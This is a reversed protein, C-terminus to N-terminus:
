RPPRPLGARCGCWREEASQAFAMLAQEQWLPTKAVVFKQEPQSALDKYHELYKRKVAEYPEESTEAHGFRSELHVVSPTRSAAAVRVGASTAILKAVAAEGAASVIGPTTRLYARAFSRGLAQGAMHGTEHREVLLGM